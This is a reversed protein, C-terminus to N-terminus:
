PQQVCRNRRQRRRAGHNPSRAQDARCRCLMGLCGLGAALLLWSGPEPVFRLRLVAIDGWHSGGAWHTLRPTVMQITGVGGPTRNDYGSRVLRTPFGSGGAASVSVWGTTWPFGTVVARSRYSLPASTFTFYGSVYTMSAYNGGVVRLGWRSFHGRWIGGGLTRGANHTGFRGFLGMVGGFQNAGAFAAARTMGSGLSPVFSFSGPGAGAGFAGPRNQLDATTLTYLIDPYPPLSGFAARQLDGRRVTFSLPPLTGLKMVSGTGTLPAGQHLAGASCLTGGNAPNCHAGLPLAQRVETAFPPTSGSTTDNAFAHLVLSGSYLKPAAHASPACAVLGLLAAAAAFSNLRPPM